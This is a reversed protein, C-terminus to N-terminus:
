GEEDLSRGRQAQLIQAAIVVLLGLAIVILASSAVEWRYQATDLVGDDISSQSWVLDVVGAIAIIVGGASLWTAGAGEAERTQRTLRVFLYVIAALLVAVVLTSIVTVVSESVAVVM